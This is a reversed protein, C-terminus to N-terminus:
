CRGELKTWRSEECRCPIGTMRAVCREGSGVDGGESVITVSSVLLADGAGLSFSSPLGCVWMRQDDPGGHAQALRPSDAAWILLASM